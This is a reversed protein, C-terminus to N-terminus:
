NSRVQIVCSQNGSERCAIESVIRKGFMGETIGEVFGILEMCGEAKSPNDEECFICDRFEFSLHTGFQKDGNVKVQGWGSDRIVQEITNFCLDSATGLMRRVKKGMSRGYGHFLEKVLGGYEGSIFNAAKMERWTGADIAFGSGELMTIKGDHVVPAMLRDPTPSPDSDSQRWDELHRWASGLPNSDRQTVTEPEAAQGLSRLIKAVSEFSEAPSQLKKSAKEQILALIEKAGAGFHREIESALVYPDAMAGEPMLRLIVETPTKGTVEFLAERVSERFDVGQALLQNMQVITNVNSKPQNAFM